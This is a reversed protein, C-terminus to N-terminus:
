QLSLLAMQLASALLILGQRDPAQYSDMSITETELMYLFDPSNFEGRM